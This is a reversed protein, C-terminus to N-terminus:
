TRHFALSSQTPSATMGVGAVLTLLVFMLLYKYIKRMM